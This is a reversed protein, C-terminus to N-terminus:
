QRHDHGLRAAGPRTREQLAEHYAIIAEELRAVGRGREGLLRLADGLNNMTKAWDLPVRAQTWEKQAERFATVAEELASHREGARWSAHACRRYSKPNQGM